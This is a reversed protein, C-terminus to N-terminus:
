RAAPWVGAPAVMRRVEDDTIPTLHLPFSANLLKVLSQAWKANWATGAHGDALTAHSPHDGTANVVHLPDSLALSVYAPKGDAGRSGWLASFWARDDFFALQRDSAALRRLGADFRDLGTAINALRQPSQWRDLYQSWHANNFVGVLVIHVLPRQRRIAGVAQGIGSLCTDIKARVPAALPDHALLDLDAAKGFTNVGIRIVVVGRRWTAPDDDMLRLLRPVQRTREWLDECGSGSAAFNYRHDQKRPSRADLGIWELARALRGSTGTVGYTGLDIEDRRLNELAETWQYTSTRFRGGRLASGPPFAVTDRYGHSDSDGVVALALRPPVSAARPETLACALVM